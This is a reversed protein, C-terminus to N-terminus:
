EDSTVVLLNDLQNVTRGTNVPIVHTTKGESNMAEANLLSSM